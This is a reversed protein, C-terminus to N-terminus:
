RICTRSRDCRGIWTKSDSEDNTLAPLTDDFQDTMMGREGEPSGWGDGAAFVCSGFARNGIERGSREGPRVSRPRVVPGTAAARRRHHSGPGRPAVAVPAVAPDSPPPPSGAASAGPPLPDSTSPHEPRHRRHCWCRSHSIEERCTRFHVAAM